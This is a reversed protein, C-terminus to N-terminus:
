KFDHTKIKFMQGDKCHWVIGEIKCKGYKSMQKPLWDKLGQFDVPVDKFVPAQGLSFLCVIHKELGLSERTAGMIKDGLAEGSWEGDPISSLDTNRAAEWLYKDTPAYEDADM